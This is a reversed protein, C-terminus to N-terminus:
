SITKELECEHKSTDNDNTNQRDFRSGSTCSDDTPAAPIQNELHSVDDTNANTVDYEVLQVSRPESNAHSKVNQKRRGLTACYSASM